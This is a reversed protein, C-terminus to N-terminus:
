RANHGYVLRLFHIAAVCATPVRLVLSGLGLRAARGDFLQREELSWGGEPGVYLSIEPAHVLDPAADAFGIAEERALIEDAVVHVGPRALLEPLERWSDEIGLRWARGCQECAADAVRQAREVPANQGKAIQAHRARLFIIRSAGVETAQQVATWLDDGKPPALVLTLRPLLPPKRITAEIEFVTSKGTSRVLAPTIGGQGDLFNLREGERVRLVRLHQQVVAPLDDSSFTGPRFVFDAALFNAPAGM